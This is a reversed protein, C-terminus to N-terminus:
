RSPTHSSPTFPTYSDSPKHHGDLKPQANLPAVPTVGRPTRCRIGHVSTGPVAHDDAVRSSEYNLSRADAHKPLQAFLAAAHRCRPRRECNFENAQDRRRRVADLRCEYGGARKESGAVWGM